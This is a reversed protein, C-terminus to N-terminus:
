LVHMCLVAIYVPAYTKKLRKCNSYPTCVIIKVTRLYEYRITSSVYYDMWGVRFLVLQNQELFTTSINM